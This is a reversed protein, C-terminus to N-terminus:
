IGFHMRCQQSQLSLLATAGTDARIRDIDDITMPCSGSILDDRIRNWNLTWEWMIGHGADLGVPRDDYGMAAGAAIHGLMREGCIRERDLHAGVEDFRIQHHRLVADEDCAM